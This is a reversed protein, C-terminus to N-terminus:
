FFTRDDFIIRFAVYECQKKGMVLKPIGESAQPSPEDLYGRMTSNFCDILPQKQEEFCEPGEEAIFVAVMPFFYLLYQLAIEVVPRRVHM